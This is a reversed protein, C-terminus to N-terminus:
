RYGRDERINEETRNKTSQGDNKNKDRRMIERLTPQKNWDQPSEIIKKRSVYNHTQKM